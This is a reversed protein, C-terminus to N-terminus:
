VCALMTCSMWSPGSLSGAQKFVRLRAWLQGRGACRRRSLFSADARGQDGRQEQHDSVPQRRAVDFDRRKYAVIGSLKSVEASVMLTRVIQIDNWAEENHGLQNENFARWLPTMASPLNDSHVLFHVGVM